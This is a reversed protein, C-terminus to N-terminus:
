EVSKLSEVMDIKRLNFYTTIQMIVSFVITILFTWLFSLGKISKFYVFEDREIIGIVFHHLGIGLLLGAAISILTLLFAERYIYENTEMDNFGLVKLTAIERKRESINISTLNYLVIVVLLCSVFVLLLVVSNLSSNEKLARSLIDDTFTVNVVLNSDLLSKALTSKDGKYGSVIMNYSLDKQFIRTYLGKSIYIYNKLYNEAIDSVPLAFSNNDSDKIKLIDGKKIKYITAIKESIIVGTDNLGATNGTKYNKLNYYGPFIEEDQPVILYADLEKKKSQCTVSTQKILLPNTIDDELNITDDKLVIMDSYRFIDGYQKEAIGNFSDKIGFGTLLLATCGAIGIITMFVRPKYRFINRMTVKWTFSLHKWIFGVKELLIIQGKKPPVPRMLAAPREKLEHHCFAATVITMLLIAVALISFLSIADFQLILPPLNYPFCNYVIKPIVTCGIFYGSISGLVTASLVYLLYTTVISKDHFGLSALTGLEAREEAIMRGMTNSTMLVVILMFFIPIIVAIQKITNAAAKLDDYGNVVNNRELITWKPKEIESLKDRADQLKNEADAIKTQFEKLNKNYEDYGDKLKEDNLTLEEEGKKIQEKASEIRTNFEAIGQNLEKEKAALSKISENLTVLGKYSASHGQIQSKLQQYEASDKPLKSQKAKLIELATNLETIKGELENEKMGYKKLTSDINSWGDAIKEKADKFAANQTTITQNLDSEKKSLEEKADSLKSTNEDLTNKADSLKKEGKTKEEEFDKQNKQIENNAKDYIEQYRASERAPKISEIETQLASIIDKYEESFANLNKTGAAQINILTYVDLIFNEKKVYFYSYLKGDGVTTSGYDDSLFLPTKVTGVVTFETNKLNDSEDSTIKIKDGIKYHKNDAACETESEPMRGELLKVTNVEEEIAQIRLAKGQELVDLSYSPTVSSVNKLAKLADADEATLGLTSVIQFNMLKQSQMYSSLSSTIDPVSEKIGAFFGVGVLVILFLSLFRGISKKIKILTNKYLM